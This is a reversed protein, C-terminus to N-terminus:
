YCIRLMLIAAWKSMHGYAILSLESIVARPCPEWLQFLSIENDGGLGWYGLLVGWVDHM